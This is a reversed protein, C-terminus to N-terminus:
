KSKPRGAKKVPAEPTEFPTEVESKVSEVEFTFEEKSNRHRHIKSDISSVKEVKDTEINYVHFM